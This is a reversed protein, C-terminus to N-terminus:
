EEGSELIVQMLDKFCSANAIRVDLNLDPLDWIEGAYRCEFFIYRDNEQNDGCWPCTSKFGTMRKCLNM